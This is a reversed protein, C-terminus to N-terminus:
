EDEPGALASAMQAVRDAAGPSGLKSRVEALGTLVEQRRPGDELIEALADAMM